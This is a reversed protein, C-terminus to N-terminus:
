VTRLDRSTSENISQPRSPRVTNAIGTGPVYERTKLQRILTPHLRALLISSRCARCSRRLKVKSVDRVGDFDIDEESVLIRM